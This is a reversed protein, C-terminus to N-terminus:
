VQVGQIQNFWMFYEIPNSHFQKSKKQSRDSFKEDKKTTWLTGLSILIEFYAPNLNTIPIVKWTFVSLSKNLINEIKWIKQQEIFAVCEHIWQILCGFSQRENHFEWSYIVKYLKFNSAVKNSCINKIEKFRISIYSDVIIFHHFSLRFFDMEYLLYANM